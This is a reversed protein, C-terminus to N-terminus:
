EPAIRPDEKREGGAAPVEQLQVGVEEADGHLQEELQQIHNSAVNYVTMCLNKWDVPVQNQEANIANQIVDNLSVQGDSM